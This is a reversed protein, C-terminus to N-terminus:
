DLVRQERQEADLNRQYVVAIVAYCDWSQHGHEPHELTAPTTFVPGIYRADVHTNKCASAISKVVDAADCDYVSGGVLIHRSGQTNGEALQHNSRPKASKPLESIRVLIVDGQHTVDGVGMEADTFTRPENNVIREHIHQKTRKKAKVSM